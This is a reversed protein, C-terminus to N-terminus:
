IIKEIIRLKASRARPNTKQEETSPVIPKKNVLRIEKKEFLSRFMKKVHRDEVSHFTIVAIHGHTRLIQLAGSIGSTIAGLEDNTAMRLAQFTRTAPHIRGHHYGSPTSSKVIEVLHFTSKIPGRKREDIIAQAIRRAYREEGFGQLISTITEISWLNVIKSATTDEEKPDIAYTMLLPEDRLFTFGRGVEELQTSSLGFDFLVADIKSINLDKLMKEINRFNEVVPTFRTLRELDQIKEQTFVNADADFSILHGTKGILEAISRSHGGHGFTGDVVTMGTSIRLASVAEKLLVSIHPM